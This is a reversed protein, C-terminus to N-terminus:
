RLGDRLSDRLYRVYKPELKGEQAMSEMIEFAKDMPLPKKYPRDTALLADCIDAVALIRAEMALAKDKIGHPYGSGNVCEHHMSAWVPAMSFAKNFYVKKLIRDTMVVHNEMIERENATLTGRQIQM